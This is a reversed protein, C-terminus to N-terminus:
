TNKTHSKHLFLQKENIRLHETELVPLSIALKSIKRERVLLPIGFLKRHLIADGHVRSIKLYKLFHTHRTCSQRMWQRILNRTKSYNHRLKRDWMIFESM